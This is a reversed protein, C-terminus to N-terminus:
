RTIHNVAWMSAEQIKTVALSIERSGRAPGLSQVYNIFDLAMDKVRKMQVKEDDTLVRYEHRVVNNVLREDSTSDM